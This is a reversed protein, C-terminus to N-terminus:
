AETTLELGLAQRWAHRQAQTLQEHKSYDRPNQRQNRERDRLAIAWAKPHTPSSEIAAIVDAVAKPDPETKM